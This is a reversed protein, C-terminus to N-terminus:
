SKSLQCTWAPWRPVRASLTASIMSVSGHTSRQKGWADYHAKHLTTLPRNPDRRHPFLYTGKAKALRRELIELTAATLPVNRRAFKTKGSPVFLYHRDLHVNEKRITYVEEPRM